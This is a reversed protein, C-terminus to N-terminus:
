TEVFVEGTPLATVIVTSSLSQLLVIAVTLSESVMASELPSALTLIFPEEAGVVIWVFSPLTDNETVEWFAVVAVNIM